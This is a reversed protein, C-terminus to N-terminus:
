TRLYALRKKEAAAGKRAQLKCHRGKGISDTQGILCKGGLGKKTIKLIANHHRRKEVNNIKWVQKERLSYPDRGQGSRHLTVDAGSVRFQLIIKGGAEIEGRDGAIRFEGWQEACVQPPFYSKM